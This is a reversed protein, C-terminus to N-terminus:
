HYPSWRSRCEKGVRREESRADIMADAEELTLCLPKECVVHKGARAGDITIPAHLRNPATISIMEVEPDRLLERYDAYSRAIGHRQAFSAAHGKTPSAVAVIEAEDPTPRVAGAICEAQFRSGIIGIKVRSM